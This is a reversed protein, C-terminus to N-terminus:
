FMTVRVFHNNVERRRLRNARRRWRPAGASRFLQRGRCPDYDFPRQCRVGELAVVDKTATGDADVTLAPLDGKHGEGLPGLHKGTNAPDYHGGATMGAAPQGNPENGPGCNPNVHVHFGHDGPPLGALRPTVRLGAETDSLELTGIEEGIGHADVANMTVTENAAYAAGGGAVIAIIIPKVYGKM